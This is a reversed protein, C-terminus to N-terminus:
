LFFDLDDFIEDKVNPYKKAATYCARILVRKGFAVWKFYLWCNWRYWCWRPPVLFEYRLTGYKEKMAIGCFSWKRVYSSIYSEAKRLDDWYPWEDGWTHYPGYFLEEIEKPDESHLTNM